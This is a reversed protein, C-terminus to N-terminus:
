RTGRLDMKINNEQRNRPRGLPRKRESHEVLVKYTNRMEEHMSHTGGM